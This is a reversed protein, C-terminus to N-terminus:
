AANRMSLGLARSVAALGEHLARWGAPTVLSWRDRDVPFDEDVCVSWVAARALAPALCRSLADEVANMRRIIDAGDGGENGGGDGPRGTDMPGGIVRRYAVHLAALEEGARRECTTLEPKGNRRAHTSLAVLPRAAADSRWQDGAVARRRAEVEPPVLPGQTQKPRGGHGTVRLKNRPRNNKRKSM